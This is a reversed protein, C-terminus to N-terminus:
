SLDGFDKPLVRRRQRSSVTESGQASRSAARWAIHPRCCGGTDCIKGMLRKLASPERATFHYIHMDFHRSWIQMVSDVFWEFAAKEEAPKFAWRREYSLTGDKNKGVFGFLYEMGDTGIFSDGELDFFIDGPSPEPLRALGANDFLEHVPRGSERGAVQLRAQERVRVYGEKSGYEPRQKLPLPLESLQAMTNIDWGGLQKRQLRSIGAVLSLHDERRWESDCKKWWRCVGCHPNPESMTAENGPKADVAQELRAKVFRYYAAYESVAFPEPTFMEMPSVVYMFKPAIGQIITLLDSYLSLQLITAGKTERALKCDYIEYSWPGLNSPTEVRRLVDTRGFWRGNTLVAQTIVHAGQKMAKIAEEAAQKDLQFSRLDTLSLGRDALHKLYRQEHEFGLQQLVATDPNTWDPGAIKGTTLAYDLTTIHTCDLHNSLDSASLRLSNNESKM